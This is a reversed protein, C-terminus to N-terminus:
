LPVDQTTVDIERVVPLADDTAVDLERVVPPASEGVPRAGCTASVPSPCAAVTRPDITRIDPASRGTADDPPWNRAARGATADTNRHRHRMLPRM